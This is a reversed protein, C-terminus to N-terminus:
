SARWTATLGGDIVDMTMYGETPGGIVFQNVIESATIYLKNNSIYAIEANDQLFSLKENSLVVKYPSDSRGLTLGTPSFQQWSEVTERFTNLASSASTGAAKAETFKATISGNVVALETNIVEDLQAQTVLGDLASANAKAALAENLPNVVHLTISENSSLDLSSAFNSSVKDVTITGTQINAATITQGAIENGTISGALIENATISRAAIEESTLSHAVIRDATISRPTLTNGDLSNISQSTLEGMNNLAYVLSRDSGSIVLREVSLEGANIKNATLTVIKADTISGDAIQATSVAEQAILANTIAANQIQASGIAALAIKASTIQADGIHAEQIAGQQINASAIAAQGIKTNIIAADAINISDVSGEGIHISDVAAESIKVADIAANGIKANTVALDSIKAETIAAAAIKASGVALDAIKASDIAADAIKATVIAADKIKASEIAADAINIAAITGNQIKVSTIAANDIKANTIAADSIKANTVAADQIHASAITALAINASQIAALGIKATTIAADTINATDIAALAIKANTIAADNIHATQIAAMGIKASTIAADAILANTIEGFGIKASTIAATGIKANTIAADEINANKIQALGIKASTIAADIINATDIAAFGIKANTIAADTIHATQIAASGIKTSTIAADQINATQIAATGIKANTIAADAINATQITATAIKANTIQADKIKATEISADKIHATDIAANQIHASGIAATKVQLSGISMTQLHGTGVSGMALKMGKIGGAPLQRPSIMSGAITESAMGLTMKAYRRLLCDYSYETMRLAVELSLTRVIVRVSDGLFIDTLPKYDAYEQTDAVNIFDVDISIDPLDCGKDYEARAAARLKDKAQALTLDDGVKADSVPLHIWRPHPYAGINPSDVYKEDLLLVSGDENEGTPVIRTVVNADDVDYSIGLLNKGQRIQIDTDKGVRKVAYLDYWDRALEGSVKELLGGEGLLAEMPNTNEFSLDEVGQTLDSYMQFSHATQCGNVIGEAVIAGATGKVPKYAYIMNDMLDYSLHRAFATVQTLEPVIRYIRFPQDRLQRPAVIQGTATVNTIETRVFVLYESGMWGRKGDPAIVEFFDPNATSIVQVEQGTKYKALSPSSRTARSWLNLLGGHFTRVRYIDKGESQQMLKVRPTMAAPVPAKVISGVQLWSWKDRDDLPHVLQLEWEGNLTENVLCSSPALACLGNSSFDTADASFISIM